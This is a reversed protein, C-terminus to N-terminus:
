QDYFCVELTTKKIHIKFCSLKESAKYYAIKWVDVMKGHNFKPMVKFFMCRNNHDSQTDPERSQIIVKTVETSEEISSETTEETTESDRMIEASDYEDNQRKEMTNSSGKLVTDRIMEELNCDCCKM